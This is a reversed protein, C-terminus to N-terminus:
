SWYTRIRVKDGSPAVRIESFAAGDGAPYRYVTWGSPNITPQVSSPGPSETIWAQINVPTDQFVIEFERSFMSGKTHVQLDIRTTPIDALRAWQQTTTIASSRNVPSAPSFILWGGVMVALTGLMMFLGVGMIWKRKKSLRKMKIPQVLGHPKSYCWGSM